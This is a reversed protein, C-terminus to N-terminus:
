HSCNRCTVIIQVKLHKCSRIHSTLVPIISAVYDFNDLLSADVQSITSYGHRYHFVCIFKLLM